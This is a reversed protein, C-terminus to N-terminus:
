ATPEVSTPIVLRSDIEVFGVKGDEVEEERYVVLPATLNDVIDYPRRGKFSDRNKVVDEWNKTLGFTLFYMGPRFRIDPVEIVVTNVEGAPVRDKTVSHRITALPEHTKSSRFQMSVELGDVPEFVEYTMEFCATEGQKFRYRDVGKRDRIDIDTFRAQGLGRRYRQDGLGKEEDVEDLHLVDYYEKIVATTNGDAVVRGEELLITRSCLHEIMQMQHSVFLVTRGEEAVKNMKGLCKKQFAVDGVALVEDILLIEPDLHAAVSFGLRVKMGSSYRKVPTDIFKEVGSFQVIEDFKRDVEAKSMGLITGNLYVNERGTLEPHFGTGVSLLCAVRGHLEARGSTPHTIHSLVKLLTTKGAGNRGIIGVVEGHKVEFSVDDLAWIIDKAREQEFWSLKKLRRYNDIPRKLWAGIAGVLTDPEEEELGIRYRKSLGDVKIVTSSM